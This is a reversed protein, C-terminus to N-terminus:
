TGNKEKSLHYIIKVRDLAEQLTPNTKAMRHIEGWMKSDMIHDHLPRGDSTRPDYDYGIEKRTSPDSGFERAYTIGDAKEYVYTVGPKLSGM